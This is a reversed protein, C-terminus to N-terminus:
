MLRRPRGGRRTISCIHELVSFFVSCIYSSGVTEFKLKYNIKFSKKFPLALGKETIKDSLCMSAYGAVARQLSSHSGCLVRISFIISGM